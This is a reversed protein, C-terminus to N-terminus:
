IVWGLHVLGLFESAGQGGVTSLHGASILYVLYVNRRWNKVRGVIVFQPCPGPILNCLQM